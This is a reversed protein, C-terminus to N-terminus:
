AFTCLGSLKEKGPLRLHSCNVREMEGKAFSPVFPRGVESNKRKRKNNPPDSMPAVSNSVEDIWTIFPALRRGSEHAKPAM